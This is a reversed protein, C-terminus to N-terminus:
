YVQLQLNDSLYKNEGFEMEFWVNYIGCDMNLDETNIFYSGEVGRRHEILDGEVIIRLDKEQPLCDGCSKEIWIKLSSSVALNMYYRKLESMTPVNPIIEVNIWKREGYRIRNPRFGFSFDYIIPLDSAFWLNPMVSFENSVTGSQNQDFEVHWVDIYNGITYVQDEINIETFYQGGFPDSTVEYIESNEITQVLRRGDPNQDTIENKDLYYIEIKEINYVNQRSNSNYTFLRLSLDDGVVINQNREKTM